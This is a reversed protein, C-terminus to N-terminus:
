TCSPPDLPSCMKLALMCIADGGFPDLKLDKNDDALDINENGFSYPVWITASLAYLALMSYKRFPHFKLSM